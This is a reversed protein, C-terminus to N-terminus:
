KSLLNRAMQHLEESALTRLRKKVVRYFYERETKTFPKGELRKNLLEKQRPTFVESLLLELELAHKKKQAEESAPAHVVYNRFNNKLRETSLEVGDTKVPESKLFSGTLSKVLKGTEKAGMWRALLKLVRPSYKRMGFLEFLLHSLALMVALRHEMKKSLEKNPNWLRNEWSLSEKEELAHALVVPFGELLRADDQQLLQMLVEEPEDTMGPRMLAYGYHALNDMLQNKDTTKM